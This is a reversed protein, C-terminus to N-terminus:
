TLSFMGTGQGGRLMQGQDVALIGAAAKIQSSDPGFQLLSAVAWAIDSVHLEDTQNNALRFGNRPRGAAIATSRFNQAYASPCVPRGKV